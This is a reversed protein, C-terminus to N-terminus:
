KNQLTRFVVTRNEKDYTFSFGERAGPSVAVQTGNEYCVAVCDLELDRGFPDAPFTVVIDEGATTIPYKETEAVKADVYQTFEGSASM